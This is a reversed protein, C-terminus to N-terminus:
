TATFTKIADPISWVEITALYGPGGASMASTATGASGQNQIAVALDAVETWSTGNWEETNTKSPPTGGYVLSSTNTANSSGGGTSHHSNTNGVETWTTGDYSECIKQYAPGGSVYGNVYLASTSNGMGDGSYRAQNIDGKESWSSGNWEEVLVSDNTGPATSGGINIAATQLGCGGSARRSTTFGTITTWSTNNWSESVNGVAGSGYILAATQTGAGTRSETSRATQIDAAETWTTGDYQEHLASFSGTYGAAMSAASVSAGYGFMNNRATNLNTGSAWAGTGQAGFSKLVTSTTNYWVQGEQVVSVTAPVTFEETVATASPANGGAFVAAAQTGFGAANGRATTLDGAEAWTTGDYVETSASPPPNGGIVAGATTTGAGGCGERATNVNNVETWSTGDYVETATSPSAGGGTAIVAATQIGAGGPYAHVSNTVAPTVTWSSGNWELTQTSPSSIPSMGAATLGATTIGAGMGSRRQVPLDGVETWSTGDYEETEKGLPGPIPDGVGGGFCIAATQIGFGRSEQRGANLSNVASWSTGDYEETVAGAPTTGPYNGWELGATLTGAGSNRNSATNLAGGATWTGAAGVQVYPDSALSQITFGKIGSYTAM